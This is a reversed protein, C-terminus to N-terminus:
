TMGREAEARLGALALDVWDAKGVYGMDGPHGYYHDDYEEECALRLMKDKLAVEAQLEAIAAAALRLGHAVDSPALTGDGDWWKTYESVASM